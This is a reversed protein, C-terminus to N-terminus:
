FFYLIHPISLFLFFLFFFFIHIYIYRNYRHTHYLYTTTVHSILTMLFHLLWARYSQSPVSSCPGISGPWPELARFYNSIVYPPVSKVYLDLGTLWAWKYALDSLYAIIYWGDTCLRMLAWAWIELTWCGTPACTAGQVIVCQVTCASCLVGGM